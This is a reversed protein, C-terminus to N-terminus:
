FEMDLGCISNMKRVFAAQREADSLLRKRYWHLYNRLADVFRNRDIIHQGNTCEYFSMPNDVRIFWDENTEAEHLLACRINKYFAEALPRDFVDRFPPRNVLFSVFKRRSRNYEYAALEHDLKTTYKEGQWTAELAEILSCVITMIAFGEGKMKDDAVIDEIPELYRTHIRKYFIDFAQGWLDSRTPNQRLLERMDVWDKVTKDGAIRHEYHKM